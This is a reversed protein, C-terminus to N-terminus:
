LRLSSSAQDGGHGEEGAEMGREFGETEVDATVAVGELEEAGVVGAGDEVDSGVGALEGETGSGNEGVGDDVGEFGEGLGERLEVGEGMGVSKEEGVGEGDAVVGTGGIEMLVLERRRRREEFERGIVERGIGEGGMGSRSGDGHEGEVMPGLLPFGFVGLGEFGGQEDLGVDLAILVADKGSGGGGEGAGIKEDQLDAEDREIETLGGEVLEVVGDSGEAEMAGSEEVGGGVGVRAREELGVGEEGAGAHRVELRGLGGVRQCCRGPGDRLGLWGGFGDCLGSGGPPTDAGAIGDLQRPM